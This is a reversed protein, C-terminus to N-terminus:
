QIVLFDNIEELGPYTEQNFMNDSDDSSIGYTILTQLDILVQNAKTENKSKIATVLDRLLIKYHDKHPLEHLPIKVSEDSM